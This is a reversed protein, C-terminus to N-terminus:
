HRRTPARERGRRWEQAFHIQCRLNACAGRELPLGFVWPLWISFIGTERPLTPEGNVLATLTHTSAAHHYASVGARSYGVYQICM